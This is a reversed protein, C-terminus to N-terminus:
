NMTMTRALMDTKERDPVQNSRDQWWRSGEARVGAVYRSFTRVSMKLRAAAQTRTLVGDCWEEYVPLFEAEQVKKSM